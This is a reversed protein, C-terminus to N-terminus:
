KYYRVISPESFEKAINADHSYGNSVARSLRAVYECLGTRCLYTNRTNTGGQFTSLMTTSQEIPPDYHM